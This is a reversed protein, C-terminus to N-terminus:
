HSTSCLLCVEHWWVAMLPLKHHLELAKQMSGIFAHGMRAPQLAHPM